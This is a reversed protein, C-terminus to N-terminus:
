FYKAWTALLPTNDESNAKYETIIVEITDGKSYSPAVGNVWKLLGAGDSYGPFHVNFEDNQVTFITSFTNVQGVPRPGSYQSITIQTTNEDTPIRIITNPKLAYHGNADASGIEIATVPAGTINRTNTIAVYARGNDDLQVAAGGDGAYGTKIGGFETNTAKYKKKLQKLFTGLNELNIYTAM